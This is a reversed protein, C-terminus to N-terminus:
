ASLRVPVDCAGANEDWAEAMARPPM